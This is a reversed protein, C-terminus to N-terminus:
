QLKDINPTSPQLIINTIPVSSRLQRGMLLQALFMGNNILTTRYSLLVLFPDSLNKLLSKATQVATEAEGNSHPFCPSSTRHQFGYSTAFSAFQACNYCPGNDSFVVMPIGHYAFTAKLAQTVSDTTQSRLELVEIYQSYYDVLIVYHRHNMEFLDMRVKQWPLEPLPTSILAEAKDRAWYRCIQCTSIFHEIDTSIKPWWVSQRARTCCKEVSLHGAHLATLTEQRLSPVVIKSNYLILNDLVALLDCSHWYSKLNLTLDNDPWSITCYAIAHQLTAVAATASILNNIMADTLPLSTIITSVFGEIIDSTDILQPQNSLPIRSLIDATSLQSWPIYETVFDFRTLKIRMRQICLPVDDLARQLSLLSTLPKYDTQLTFQSGILYDSFHECAWTLALCEKEVLAYRKKIDTITRLAFVVPRWANDFQRQKLVVSLDYSLIDASVLM